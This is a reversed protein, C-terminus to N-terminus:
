VGGRLPPTQAQSESNKETYKAWPRLNVFLISKNKNARKSSFTFSTGYSM